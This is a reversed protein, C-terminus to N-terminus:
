LLWQNRRIFEGFHQLQMVRNWTFGTWKGGAFGLSKPPMAM